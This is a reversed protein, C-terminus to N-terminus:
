VRWPMKKKGSLQRARTIYAIDEQQKYECVLAIRTGDWEVIHECKKRARQPDDDFQRQLKYAAQVVLTPPLKTTIHEPDVVVKAM